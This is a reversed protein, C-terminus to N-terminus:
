DIKLSFWRIQFYGIRKSLNKESKLCFLMSGHFKLRSHSKSRTKYLGLGVGLALSGGLGPAVVGWDLGLSKNHELPTYFSLLWLLHSLFNTFFWNKISIKTNLNSFKRFFQLNKMSKKFIQSFNRTQFFALNKIEGIYFLVGGDAFDQM